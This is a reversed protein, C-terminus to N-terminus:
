NEYRLVPPRYNERSMEGCCEYAATRVAPLECRKQGTDGAGGERLRSRNRREDAYEPNTHRVAEREVMMNNASMAETGCLRKVGGQMVCRANRAVSCRAARM